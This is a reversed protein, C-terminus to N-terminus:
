WWGRFFVLLTARREGLVDGMLVEKGTSDVLRAGALQGQVVEGAVAGREEDPYDSYFLVWWAFLLVLLIGVGMLVRKGVTPAKWVMLGLLALGYLMVALNGVPYLQYVGRQVLVIYVVMSVPVLLFALFANM